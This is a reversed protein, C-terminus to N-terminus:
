LGAHDDRRRLVGPLDHVRQGRVRAPFLLLRVCVVDQVRLYVQASQRRGGSLLLLSGGRRREGHAHRLGHATAQRFSCFRHLLGCRWFLSAVSRFLSEVSRFFHRSVRPARLFFRASECFVAAALVALRLVYSGFVVGRLEARSAAAWEPKLAVHWTRVHFVHHRPSGAWRGPVLLRLWNDHLVDIVVAPVGTRAADAGALELEVVDGFAFLAPFSDLDRQYLAYLRAALLKQTRTDRSILELCAADM